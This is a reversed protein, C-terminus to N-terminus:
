TAPTFGVGHRRVETEIEIFAVKEIAIAHRHGRSDTIWLIAEGAAVGKQFIGAVDTGEDVELELERASVMGFRVKVGDSM